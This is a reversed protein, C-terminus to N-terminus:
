IHVDDGSDVAPDPRVAASFPTGLAELTRRSGSLNERLRERATWSFSSVRRVLRAERTGSRPNSGRRRPPPFGQTSGLVPRSSPAKASCVPRNQPGPRIGRGRRASGLPNAAWILSQPGFAAWTAPDYRSRGGPLSNGRRNNTAARNTSIAPTHLPLRAYTSTVAGRYCM